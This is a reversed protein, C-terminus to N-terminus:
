RWGCFQARSGTFSCPITACPQLLAFINRMATFTAPPMIFASHGELPFTANHAPAAHCIFIWNWPKLMFGKGATTDGVFMVVNDRDIKGTDDTLARVTDHALEEKNIENRVCIEDAM